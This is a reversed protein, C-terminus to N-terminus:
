ARYLRRGVSRHQCGAAADRMAGAAGGRRSRRAAAAAAAAGTWFRRARGHIGHPLPAAFARHPAPNDHARAHTFVVRQQRTVADSGGGAGTVRSALVCSCACTSWRGRRMHARPATACCTCRMREAADAGSGFGLMLLRAHTVGSARAASRQCAREDGASGILVLWAWWGAVMRGGSGARVREAAARLCDGAGACVVCVVFAVCLVCLQCACAKQQSGAWAAAANAEARGHVCADLAM